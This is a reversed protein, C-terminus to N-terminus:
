SDTLDMSVGPSHGQWFKGWSPGRKKKISRKIKEVKREEALGRNSEGGKSPADNKITKNKEKKQLLESFV